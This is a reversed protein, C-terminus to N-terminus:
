LAADHAKLRRTESAYALIGKDATLFVADLERATAILVRDLPNAIAHRPITGADLAVGVSLPTTRVGGLDIADHLWRELAVTLQLRGATHLAAVEFITATSM